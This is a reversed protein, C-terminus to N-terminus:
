RAKTDGRGAAAGRGGEPTLPLAVAIARGASYEDLTVPPPPAGASLAQMTRRVTDIERGSSAIEEYLRRYDAVMDVVSRLRLAAVNRRMQALLRRDRDLRDIADVLADADGPPVLLGTQGDVVREPIAGMATAIVPTGARHAEDLTYCYTEHAVSGIVVVDADQLMRSLERPVYPGCLELNGGGRLGHGPPLGGLVRFRVSREGMRRAAAAFTDIGKSQTANGVFVVRLADHPAYVPEFPHAITGHPIVRIRGGIGEGWARASQERVFSSPVVLADARELVARALEARQRLWAPLDPAAAGPRAQLRRGLCDLCRANDGDAKAEGCAVGDAHLLNWDPCLLFYDHLVVVVKAGLARAVLPLALSGLNAFHSFQVIDARAGALVDAFFREAVPARLSLTAGRLAHDAGFLHANMRVKLLGGALLGRGEVDVSGDAFPSLPAPYLVTSAVEDRMGDVLQRVFLETGAARDFSHTVHLVRLKAPTARRLREHLMQQQLRLPNQRCYAQLTPTYRPWREDIRRENARRLANRSPVHSFGAEGHHHVYVDDCIVSAFGRAWARQCWDVEEGYGRGFAMDFPGVEEIARRTMLMCFGVATPVPPYRRLSTTQVLRDMEALSVNPPRVNRENFAPVSCITANNSLPSVAHISPDSRRCRDMRALWGPPFETDSNVLVVDHATSALAANVAGPFGLNSPLRYYRVQPYRSAYRRLLPDVRSDTSADDVVHILHRRDTHAILSDLCRELFEPANFNPVILDYVNHEPPAPDRDDLARRLRALLTGAIGAADDLAVAVADRERLPHGDQSLNTGPMTFVM